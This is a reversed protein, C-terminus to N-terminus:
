KWRAIIVANLNGNLASAASSTMYMFGLQVTTGGTPTTSNGSIGCTTYRAHTSGGFCVASYITFPATLDLNYSLGGTGRQVWNRSTSTENYELIVLGNSWKQFTWNGSTGYAVIAANGANCSWQQWTGGSNRRVFTMGNYTDVVTQMVIHDSIQKVFVYKASGAPWDDPINILTSWVNGSSIYYTGPTTYDNLDSNSLIAPSQSLGLREGLQDAVETKYETLDDLVGSVNAEVQNIHGNTELLSELLDAISQRAAIDAINDVDGTQRNRLYGVDAM